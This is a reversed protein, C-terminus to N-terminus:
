PKEAFQLAVVAGTFERPVEADAREPFLLRGGQARMVQDALHLGLGMGDSRRSMFPQVLYEPPDIFGPGNDAVVIAPGGALESTTGIYILKKEKSTKSFKSDLWYISNDVLNMLTAVVLRRVCKVRQTPDLDTKLHVNHAQLRLQSSFTAIEILEKVSEKRAGSRRVLSALGEVLQSVNRALTAVRGSENDAEAALLLEKLGKEVEHIVVTLSLGATASTLLQDRVAVYDSEIRDLYPPIEKWGKQDAISRLEAIDGLVPEKLRPASFATRIRSKDGNREAEVHALASRIAARLERFAPTDVFGERNTKEVLDTSKEADLSVAGLVLNNSIRSAPVNVRRGGLDLWDNGPEGYDYVRMDDRYVRVGGSASLFDRLGKRDSLGSLNLSTADLDFIDLQFRVTGVRFEDLDIARQDPGKPTQLLLGNQESTRPRVRRRMDPFPTFSYRYRLKGGTISGNVHFLAFRRVDKPTLLGDLWAKEAADTFTVNVIFADSMKRFPSSISNVARLLDRVMARTWMERLHQIVIRTGTTSGEFVVPERTQIQVPVESMYQYKNLSLWDFTVLAEDYGIKHSILTVVDGLKHAAFRGVGKEGIPRRGYPREGIEKQQQRHDTGPELWVHEIFDADMGSGDDTITITGDKASVRDMEINVRSAGADYANKVLEFVAIGADKILQDGLLLLLRARPRFRPPKEPPPQEPSTTM